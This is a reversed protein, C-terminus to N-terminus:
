EGVLKLDPVMLAQVLVQLKGCSRRSPHSCESVRVRSPPSPGLQQGAFVHLAITGGFLSAALSAAANAHWSQALQLGSSSSACVRFGAARALPRMERAGHRAPNLILAAMEAVSAVRPASAISGVPLLRLPAYQRLIQASARSPQMPSDPPFNPTKERKFFVPNPNWSELQGETLSALTRHRCSARCRRHFRGQCSRRRYEHLADDLRSLMSAVCTSPAYPLLHEFRAWGRAPEPRLGM